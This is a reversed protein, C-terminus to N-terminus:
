PRGCWGGLEASEDVAVGARTGAGPPDARRSAAPDGGGAGAPHRIRRPRRYSRRPERILIARGPGPVDARTMPVASNSGPADGRGRGADADGGASTIEPTPQQSYAM